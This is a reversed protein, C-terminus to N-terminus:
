EDETQDEVDLGSGLVYINASYAHIYMHVYTYIGPLLLM